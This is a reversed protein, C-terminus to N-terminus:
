LFYKEMAPSNIIIEEYDEKSVEKGFELDELSKLVSFLKKNEEALDKVSATALRM